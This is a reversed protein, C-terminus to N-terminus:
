LWQDLIDTFSKDCQRIDVDVPRLPQQEDRGEVRVRDACEEQLLSMLRASSGVDYGMPDGVVVGLLVWSDVGADAPEAAVPGLHVAPQVLLGSLPLDLPHGRRLHGVAARVGLDRRGPASHAPRASWSSSARLDEASTRPNVICARLWFIGDMVTSTLFAEGGLQIIELLAKNVLDIAAVDSRLEPPVYRFCVISLSRPEFVEFDGEAKLAGALGDALEIDRELARRYGSRGHHKLAMWVKLARFGRTQQFGFESFWPLGGVGQSRGQTQLYPPVLSFAPKRYCRLM